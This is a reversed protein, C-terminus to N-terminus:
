RAGGSTCAVCRWALPLWTAEAMNNKLSRGCCRWKRDCTTKQAPARQPRCVCSLGVRVAELSRSRGLLKQKCVRASQREQELEARLRENRSELEAIRRTFETRRTTGRAFSPDTSTSRTNRLTDLRRAPKVRSDVFGCHASRGMLGDLPTLTPPVSAVNRPVDLLSRPPYPDLEDVQDQVAIHPQNSNNTPSALEIHEVLAKVLPLALCSATIGVQVDDDDLELDQDGHIVIDPNSQALVQSLGVVTTGAAAAVSKSM